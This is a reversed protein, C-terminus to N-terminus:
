AHSAGRQDGRQIGMLVKRTISASGSDALVVILGVRGMPVIVAAVQDESVSDVATTEGELFVMGQDAFRRLIREAMQDSLDPIITQMAGNNPLRWDIVIRNM